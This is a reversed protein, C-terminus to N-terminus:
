FLLVVYVRRSGLEFFQHEQTALESTAGGLSSEKFNINSEVDLGVCRRAGSGHHM